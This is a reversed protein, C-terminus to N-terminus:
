FVVMEAVTAGLRQEEGQTGEITLSIKQARFHGSLQVFTTNGERIKVEHMDSSDFPASIKVHNTEYLVTATTGATADERDDAHSHIAFSRAPASGWNIIIGSINAEYGLDVTISASAPTLPQWATANSGDVVGAPYRGFVWDQEASHTTITTSTVPKCQALNVNGYYLVPRLDPRRTPVRLSEGALLKHDGHQVNHKGIRLTAPIDDTATSLRRRTITTTDLQISIDFSSGQWKLGKIIVRDSIQPPLTPDLYLYDLHPRMGTLGHTFVQLYGGAGTLFPFAPHLGFPFAPNFDDANEYNDIATESFQYFPPRFYPEGSRLLYTYAACGSQQLQAESIAFISWTM